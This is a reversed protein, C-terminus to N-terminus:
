ITGGKAAPLEEDETLKGATFDLDCGDIDDDQRIRINSKRLSKEIGGKAAPLDADSILESEGLEVDCLCGDIHEHEDASDAKKAM